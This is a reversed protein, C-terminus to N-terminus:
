NNEVEKQSNKINKKIKYYANNFTKHIKKEAEEETLGFSKLRIVEKQIVSVIDSNIENIFKDYLTSAKLRHGLIYHEMFSFFEPNRSIYNKKSANRNKTKKKSKTKKMAKNKFYYRASKYMKLEISGNFGLNEMRDSEKSILETNTRKWLEFASAFDHCNDNAHKNSFTEISELLEKNFKFRYTTQSM